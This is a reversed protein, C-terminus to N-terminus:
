QWCAALRPHDKDTLVHLETRHEIDREGDAGRAGVYTPIKVWVAVLRAASFFWTKRRAQGAIDYGSFDAEALVDEGRRVEVTEPYDEASKTAAPIKCQKNPSVRRARAKKFAGRALYGALREYAYVRKGDANKWAVFAERHRADGKVFYCHERGNEDIIGVYEYRTRKEDLDGDASEEEECHEDSYQVAFEKNKKSFSLVELSDEGRECLGEARTVRSQSVACIAVVCFILSMRSTITMAPM